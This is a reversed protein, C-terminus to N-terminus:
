YRGNEVAVPGLGSLLGVLQAQRKVGTKRFLSKMHTRVTEQSVKLAAAIQTVSLGITLKQAVVAEARTLDFLGSIVRLDPPGNEGVPTVVVLACSKNFIDRASRRVPIVQIVLAPEDGESGIAISQAVATRGLSLEALATRYLSRARSDQFFFQDRAGARIRPSLSFFQPNASVMQGRDGIVAGALGILELSETMSAAHQLGLRTALFAARALDSKLSNMRLVADASFPGEGTKKLQSFVFFSGSPETFAAGLEWALGIPELLEVRLADRALEETTMLDVDRLFTNPAIALGRAPRDTRQAVGSTEYRRMPEVIRESAVWRPSAGPALTILSTSYADIHSSLLDCVRPWLDPVVAAEYVRDIIYVQDDHLM